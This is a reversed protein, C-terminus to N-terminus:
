RDSLFAGIATFCARNGELHPLHATDEIVVLRAGDVREAIARCNDQIDPLDLTGVLVLVPVRIDELRSWANVDNAKDGPDEAALARGNMDLFLERVAGGVRGEPATPGDLWIHAELRNVEALDGGEYAADMAKELTALPEDYPEGDPSGSIAPGILVLASVRDPHMLTLDIAGKGGMSAGVVVPAALGAADMVAVADEHASYSEPQYTTEGYGRQDYTVLRRGSGVASILPDWGRRDTVGAHM